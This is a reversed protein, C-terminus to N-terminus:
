LLGWTIEIVVACFISSTQLEALLLASCKACIRDDVGISSAASKFFIVLRRLVVAPMVCSIEKTGAPWSVAAGSNSSALITDRSLVTASSSLTGIGVEFDDSDSVSYAVVDADSFGDSFDQYKDLSSGLTYSGTGTTVTQQKTRDVFKM